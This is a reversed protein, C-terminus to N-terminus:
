LRRVISMIVTGPDIASSVEMDKTSVTLREIVTDPSDTELDYVALYKRPTAAASAFEYRQAATYGPVTLVDPLHVNNYWNHYAEEQGSVPESWVFLSYKAM